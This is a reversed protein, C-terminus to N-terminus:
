RWLLALLPTLLSVDVVARALQRGLRPQVASLIWLLVASAAACAGAPRAGDPDAAAILVSVTFIAALLTRGVNESPRYRLALSTQHQVVDVDKEWESVLLLDAIALAFFLAGPIVLAKWSGAIQLAPYLAAGVTLIAAVCFEKPVRMPSDRHLYQHSLLYLLTPALMALSGVWERRSFFAFAAALSAALAAVWLAFFPWRWVIAYYHRQTRVDALPLRFGEIWRDAAYSMWVCAALILVHHPGLRAGAIRAFLLQWAATVAVADLSLITPWQWWRPHGPQFDNV